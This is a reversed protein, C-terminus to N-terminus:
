KMKSCNLGIEPKEEGGRVRPTNRQRERIYLEFDMERLAQRGTPLPAFILDAFAASYNCDDCAIILM